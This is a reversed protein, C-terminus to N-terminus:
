TEAIYVSGDPRLSAAIAHCSTSLMWSCSRKSGMMFDREARRDKAAVTSAALRVEAGEPHIETPGLAAYVVMWAATFESDVVEVAACHMKMLGPVYSSCTRTEARLACNVM